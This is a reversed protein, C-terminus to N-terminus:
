LLGLEELTLQFIMGEKCNLFFTGLKAKAAYAVVFRLIACLTFFAGYLQIPDSDTPSWGMFFHGCARSHADAELLYFADLHVNMVMGSARFWIKATPYIALYDLLQKTKEMTSTM